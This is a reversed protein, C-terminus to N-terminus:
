WFYEKIKDDALTYAYEPKMVPKNYPPVFFTVTDFIGTLARVVGILTGEVVGFTAGYFPDKKESYKVFGTPIETWCTATNIVGRGLKNVPSDEITGDSTYFNGFQPLTVSHDEDIEIDEAWAQMIPLFIFVLACMVMLIRKM